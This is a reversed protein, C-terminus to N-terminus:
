MDRYSTLPGQALRAALASTEAELSDHPVVRSLLGLRTAEAADFPDALFLLEKAKASGAYHTLLWTVGFDEGFEAKALATGFRAQDSAIRLGCSFSIAPGAGM